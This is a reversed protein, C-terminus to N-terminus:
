VKRWHSLSRSWSEKLVNGFGKVGAFRVTLFQSRKLPETKSEAKIAIEDKTDAVSSLIKEYHKKRVEAHFEPYGTVEAEGLPLGDRNLWITEINLRAIALAQFEFFTTPIHFCVGVFALTPDPIYFLDQHLNHVWTGDTVLVTDVDDGAPDSEQFQPLFPYNFMYGTCVIVQDVDTLSTGDVLNITSTTTDFNQVEKVYIVRESLSAWLAKHFKVVNAPREVLERRSIYIKGTSNPGLDKAIDMASVGGGIILVNKDKFPLPTRYLKSHIIADGKEARWSSIGPIDPVFPDNYHGTAVVIADFIEERWEFSNQEKDLIQVLIKWVQGNVTDQKEVRAVLSNYVLNEDLAFREVYSKYYEAVVSHSVSWPIDEQVPWDKLGMLPIPVNNKLSVYCANPPNQLLKAVESGQVSDSLPVKLPFSAGAPVASTSDAASQPSPQPFKPSLSTKNSDYFKWVGGPASNREYVTVQLGQDKLHRAAPLQNEPNNVNDPKDFGFFFFFSSVGSAGAGIVAVRLIPKDFERHAMNTAGYFNPKAAVPASSESSIVGAMAMENVGFQKGDSCDAGVSLSNSEQYTMRGALLNSLSAQQKAPRRSEPFISVRECGTISQFKKLVESHQENPLGPIAIHGDRFVLVSSFQTPVCYSLADFFNFSQM